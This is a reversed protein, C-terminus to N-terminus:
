ERERGRERPSVRLVGERDRVRERKEPKAEITFERARKSRLHLLRPSVPDPDAHSPVLVDQLAPRPLPLHM